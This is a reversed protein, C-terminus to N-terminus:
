CSGGGGAGGAGPLPPRLPIRGSARDRNRNQGRRGRQARSGTGESEALQDKRGSDGAGGDRGRGRERESGESSLNRGMAPSLKRLEQSRRWGDGRPARAWWWAGRGEAVGLKRWARGKHTWSLNGSWSSSPGSLPTVRHVRGTIGGLAVGLIGKQALTAAYNLVRSPFPYSYAPPAPRNGLERKGRM